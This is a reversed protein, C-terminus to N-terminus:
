VHTHGDKLRFIESVVPTLLNDVAPLRCSLPRAFDIPSTVSLTPRPTVQYGMVELHVKLFQQMLVKCLVPAGDQQQVLLTLTSWISVFCSLLIAMASAELHRLSLKATALTLKVLQLYGDEPWLLRPGAPRQGRYNDSKANSNEWGKRAETLISCVITDARRAETRRLYPTKNANVLHYRSSSSSSSSVASSTSSSMSRAHKMTIRWTTGFSRSRSM